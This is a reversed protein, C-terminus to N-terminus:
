YLKCVMELTKTLSGKTEVFGIDKYFDCLNEIDIGKDRLIDESKPYVKVVYIERKRM